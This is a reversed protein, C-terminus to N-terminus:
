YDGGGYFAVMKWEGLIKMFIAHPDSPTRVLHEEM